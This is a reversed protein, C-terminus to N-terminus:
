LMVFRKKAPEFDDTVIFKKGSGDEFEITVVKVNWKLEILEKAIALHSQEMIDVKSKIVKFYNPRYSGDMQGSDGRDIWVLTVYEDGKNYETVRATSGIPAGMHTNRILEITDGVKM